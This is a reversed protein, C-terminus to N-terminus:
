ETGNNYYNICASLGDTFKTKPGWGLENKAKRNDAYLDYIENPRKVEQSRIEKKVGTLLLINGVIEEVSVSCGSGINYIGRPAQMSLILADIFDDIYVYDRKPSLEMMEVATTNLDYIKGIIEPILFKKAQGPGYLNFPRIVTIKLNFNKAYFQCIDEALVKTHTYPNYAKLPHKEDIPLYDPQGYLYSSIYTLGSASKHCFDLVNLTGMVNIRYYDFPSEWSEPIFTKAALHFTYSIDQGLLNHLADKQSIDGDNLDFGIVEYGLVRLKSSLKTGVFGEAGTVLIKKM